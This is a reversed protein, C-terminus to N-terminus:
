FPLSFLGWFALSTLSTLAALATVGCIVRRMGTICCRYKWCYELQWAFVIVLLVTLVQLVTWGTGFLRPFPRAYVSALGVATLYGYALMTIVTSAIGLLWCPGAISPSTTTWGATAYARVAPIGTGASAAHAGGPLMGPRIHLAARKGKIRVKSGYDRVLAAAMSGLGLLSAVILLVPGAAMIGVLVGLSGIIGSDTRTPAAFRQHPQAGAIQPTAWTGAAAWTKSTDNVAIAAPRAADGANKEAVDAVDAAGARADRVSVNAIGTGLEVAVGNIWNELAQTYGDALPLGPTFLGQGARMQHNGAFYRITVDDNGARHAAAMIRQAGQEIPMATDYTGYSVLLPMTLTSLYRDADFDAYALDFPAYDLSMLKAMDKIVPKPAGAQKAYASVAMAMQERGKFVPASTLAAFAIDKRSSALITAIWTGESEAYIGTAAPNVGDTGRLVDLARSYERAFRAYDRHLVTYDDNRKAPVLTVIGASAMANAIDGFDEAGSTGSGHIFLCAPRPGPADVPERLVAPLKVGDGVDVSIDTERTRYRGERPIGANAPEIDPDSTAVTLHNTYPRIDWRPMMAWGLASFVLLLALAVVTIRAIRKM